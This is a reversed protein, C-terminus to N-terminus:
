KESRRGTIAPMIFRFYEKSFKENSFGEAAIVQKWKDELSLTGMFSIMLYMSILFPDIDSRITGDDIGECIADQLLKRSMGYGRGIESTYPNERSFRESGYFHIMRLYDPYEESFRHYANGMSVVKEIGAVQDEMCKQFQAHLLHIGRVVIAAYLAEKSEFYLYLTAKNLEVEDAIEDM